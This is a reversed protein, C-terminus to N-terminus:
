KPCDCLIDLVDLSKESKSDKSKKKEKRYIYKFNYQPLYRPTKIAKDDGGLLFLIYIKTSELNNITPTFTTINQDHNVARPRQTGFIGGKM